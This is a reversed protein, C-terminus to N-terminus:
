KGYADRNQKPLQFRFIAGGTSRNRADIIGSHAKVIAACIVLGIGLGRSRDRSSRNDSLPGDFLHPIDEEPIGQGNDAIEFVANDANESVKLEVAPNDGAYKVANEILNILVQKVLTGDMPIVLLEDPVSVSINLHNFHSKIISVAESVVEEVAEPKKNIKMTGDSIQTVSLVNEVMRILWQTDCKIDAALLYRTDSDLITDNELLVSSAGLISTLPTRLDHSIGRLFDNRMKEKETELIMAHQKDSLLQRELALAVLSATMGLFSINDHNLLSQDPCSVGIVGLIRDQSLVPQYYAPFLSLTGTGAGAPKGNSFVWHVIATENNCLCATQSPSVSRGSLPDETYLISTRNFVEVLYEAVVRRINEDGRTVLLKNNIEYLMETRKERLVASYAQEKVKGTIASTISSVLFMILFTVPYTPNVTNLTFYPETFFYNFCLVAIVSAFIGYRYGDTFRSVLVVSLIYAMIINHDGLGLRQLLFSLGTALSIMLASFLIGRLSFANRKKLNNTNKTEKKYAGRLSNDPIIHVEVDPLLSCLRDSFETSFPNRIVDIRKRKGIVISTVGTIKAYESISLAIDNGHLSVIKAGLREALATNNRIGEDTVKTIVNVAVWPAHYSEAMRAATRICKASSPSPGICVLIKESAPKEAHIGERAIRDAAKRMAIERLSNLNELTFFNERAVTVRDKKYIKGEEFRRLLEESEIDILKVKDAQDFIYDPVTERIAIRTIKQVVDNLSEIHQVNVTTYVDIGANLLEEVDQYRKKNRVGEANTHALEDVLILDPQRALAADLDFEQLILNKYILNQPPIETLGQLLRLTDPRTHPEVYGVLVDAGEKMREQADELMAYTKGVGAAYGFFIKLKGPARKNEGFLTKLLVDPDPRNENEM